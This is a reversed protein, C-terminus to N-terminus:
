AVAPLSNPYGGVGSNRNESRVNGGLLATGLDGGTQGPMSPLVMLPQQGEIAPAPMGGSGPVVYAFPKGPVQVMQVPQLVQGRGDATPVAMYLVQQQSNAINSSQQQNLPPAPSREMGQDYANGFGYQRNQNNLANDRNYPSQIRQSSSSELSTLQNHSGHGHNLGYAGSREEDVFSPQRNSITDGTVTGSNDYGHYAQIIRRGGDDGIGGYPSVSRSSASTGTETGGAPSETRRRTEHSPRIEGFSGPSASIPGQAPAVQSIFGGFSGADSAREEETMALGPLNTSSLKFVDQGLM